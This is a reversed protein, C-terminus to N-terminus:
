TTTGKGFSTVRSTANKCLDAGPKVPGAAQLVLVIWFTYLTLHGMGSGMTWGGHIWQRDSDM